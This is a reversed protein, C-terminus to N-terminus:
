GVVVQIPSRADAVLLPVCGAADGDTQVPLGTNGIFEVRRARVRRVGGIRSLRNAPLAAGYLLAALPGAHEFLSVSFGPEGPCADPALLYRGGYLRGKSSSSAVPRRRGSM